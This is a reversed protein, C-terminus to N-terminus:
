LPSSTASSECLRPDLAFVLEEGRGKGSVPNFDLALKKKLTSRLHSVVTVITHDEVSNRDDAWVQERLKTREVYRKDQYGSARAELGTTLLIKLIQMEQGVVKATKGRYTCENISCMLCTAESKPEHSATSLKSRVQSVWGEIKSNLDGLSSVREVQSLAFIDEKFAAQSRHVLQEVWAIRPTIEGPKRDNFRVIKHREYRHRAVEKEHEEEILLHGEIERVHRGQDLVFGLEFWNLHPSALRGVFSRVRRDLTAAAGPIRGLLEERAEDILPKDPFIRIMPYLANHYHDAFAESEFDTQLSTRLDSVYRYLQSKSKHPTLRAIEREIAELIVNVQFRHHKSGSFMALKLAWDFHNTNLGLEFASIRAENINSTGEM